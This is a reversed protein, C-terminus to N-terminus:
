PSTRAPVARRRALREKLFTVFSGSYSGVLVTEARLVLTAVRLLVAIWAVTAVAAVLMPLPQSGGTITERVALAVNIVPVLALPVTLQVGPTGLFMAPLIAAMYFPSVMTQGERFTRAFAALVMMGAALFGALLVAGAVMVPIASLPVGFELAGEGERGLLPAVVGRMTLLMAIVNLLGALGGLTTVALYKATVISSRAAATTILTEWTNREREGATTDIAPNLCGLAVMVVFFLPLMLGLLFTGMDRRSATNRRELAFGVWAPATVGRALAEDRLWADRYAGVADSVRRRALDSRERSGDFVVRARVNTPLGDVPRSEVLLVADLLNARVQREADPEDRPGELLQIREDERLAARLAEHAAPLGVVGVRSAMDDTQGRVFAIGTFMVWLMVPYLVLPLVISNIVITRDRLASRLEWRYLTLIESQHRPM